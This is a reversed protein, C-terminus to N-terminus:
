ARRRSTDVLCLGCLCEISRSMSSVMADVKDPVFFCLRDDLLYCQGHGSIRETVLVATPSAVISLCSSMSHTM